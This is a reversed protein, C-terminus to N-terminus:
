SDPDQPLARNDFCGRWVQRSRVFVSPNRTALGITSRAPLQKNRPLFQLAAFRWIRARPSLRARVRLRAEIQRAREATIGLRKGIEGLSLGGSRLEVVQRQRETLSGPKLAGIAAAFEACRRKLLQQSMM